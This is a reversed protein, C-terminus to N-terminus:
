VGPFSLPRRGHRRQRPSSHSNKTSNEIPIMFNIINDVYHTSKYIIIFNGVAPAHSQYDSLEHSITRYRTVSLGITGNTSQTDDARFSRTNKDSRGQRRINRRM